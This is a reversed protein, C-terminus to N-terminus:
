GANGGGIALTKGVDFAHAQNRLNESVIHQGLKGAVHGDAVRTIGRGAIRRQEVRLGNTDVGGLAQDGDCVVAVQHIKAVHARAQFAFACIELGGRVGFDDHLEDRVGLAPESTSAM